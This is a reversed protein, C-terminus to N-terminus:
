TIKRHRFGSTCKGESRVQKWRGCGKKEWSSMSVRRGCYKERQNRIVETDEAVDRDVKIHSRIMKMVNAKQSLCSIIERISIFKLM